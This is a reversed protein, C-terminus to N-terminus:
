PLSEFDFDTTAAQFVARVNWSTTTGGALQAISKSGSPLTLQISGETDPIVASISANLISCSNSTTAVLDINTLRIRKESGDNVVLWGETAPQTSNFGGIQLGLDVPEPLFGQPFVQNSGSAETASIWAVGSAETPKFRAVVSIPHASADYTLRSLALGLESPTPAVFAMGSALFARQEECPLDTPEIMGTGGTAGNGANGGSTHIGGAGGNGGTGASGGVSAGGSGGASGGNGTGGSANTGGSTSGGNGSGGSGGFATQRPKDDEGSCGLAVCWSLGLCLLSLPHRLRSNM